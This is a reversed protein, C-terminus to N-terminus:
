TKETAVADAFRLLPIVMQVAILPDKSLGSRKELDNVMRMLGGILDANVEIVKRLLEPTADPAAAILKLDEVILTVDDM